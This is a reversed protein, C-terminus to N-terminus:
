AEESPIAQSALKEAKQRAYRARRQQKIYEKNEQYYDSMIKKIKEPHTRYYKKQAEGYYQKTTTTTDM